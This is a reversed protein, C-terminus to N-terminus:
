TSIPHSGLGSSGRCVTVCLGCIHHGINRTKRFECLQEYCRDFDYAAPSEGLAAAPCAPICARCTGCGFAMATGTPLPMDTLITVYRVASGYRPHVLLNNRGIWGHGALVGVHKHSLHGKQARWDTIQSAAVPLARYGEEQILGAVRFATKDLLINAQRYHWAYLWTPGDEIEDLVADSLRVGLSIGFDLRDRVSPLRFTTRIERVDAVAFLTIGEAQCFTRLADHNQQATDM